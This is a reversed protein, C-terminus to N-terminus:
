NQTPPFIMSAGVSANAPAELQGTMDLYFNALTQEQYPQVWLVGIGFSLLCVLLLGSFSLYIYFLRKKHARMYVVSNKICSVVSLEPRDIVLYLTLFLNLLLFVTIVASVTLLLGLIIYNLNFIFRHVAYGILFPLMGLLTALIHFFGTLVFRDAHERFGCLVMDLTIERGRALNLHIAAIGAALIYSILAVLLEAARLTITQLLSPHEGLTMSFLLKIIQPIMWSVLLAGMPIRYQGILNERSIRKLEKCPRNM